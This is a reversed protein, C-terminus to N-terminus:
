PKPKEALLPWTDYAAHSYDGPLYEDFWQEGVYVAGGQGTRAKWIMNLRHRFIIRGAEDLVERVRALVRCDAEATSSYDRLRWYHDRYAEEFLDVHEAGPTVKHGFVHEAAWTDRQRDPMADWASEPM